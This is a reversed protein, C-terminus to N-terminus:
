AKKQKQRIEIVILLLILLILAAMLPIVWVIIGQRFEQQANIGPLVETSKTAPIAVEGTAIAQDFWSVAKNEGAVIAVNASALEPSSLALTADMIGRTSNGLVALLLRGNGDPLGRVALYGVDVGADAKPIVELPSTTSLTNDANVVLSPFADMGKLSPFDLPRGVMIVTSEATDALTASNSWATQMFLPEDRKLTSGLQFALSGAARLSGWEAPSVLFTVNDLGYGSLTSDPFDGFRRSISGNKGGNELPLHLISNSSVSLWAASADAPTCIDRTNLAAKFELTNRGAHMLNSPLIVKFLYQNSTSDNIRVSVVPSANLNVKLGSNLYDLQQSHSIVMDFSSDARAQQGAPLFFDFSQSSEGTNTLLIDGVGLNVLPTDDGALPQKPENVQSVVMTNGDAETPIVRGASIAQAARVIGVEDGSVLLGYGGGNMRFQHIIGEGEGASIEKTLGVTNLAATKLAESGALIIVPHNEADPTLVDSIPELTLESKGGSLRGIGAATILAARLEGQTPAAPLAIFLPYTQIPNEEIFPVPFSTLTIGNEKHSPPLKLTSEPQITVSTLLNMRCAISGDWRLLLENAGGTEPATLLSTDFEIQMTQDGSQQLIEVKLLHGNMWIGLSGGTLGSITQENEQPLISSFYASYNVTLNAPGSYAWGAPMSFRLTYESVPGNLTQPEAMGLEAFSLETDDQLTSTRPNPSDNRASVMGGPLLFCGILVISLFLQFPLLRKM